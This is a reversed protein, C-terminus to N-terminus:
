YEINRRHGGLDRGGITLLTLQGVPGGGEVRWGAGQEGDEDWGMGDWCMGAAGLGCGMRVARSLRDRAGGLGAEASRQM